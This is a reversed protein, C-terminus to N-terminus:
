AIKDGLMTYTGAISHSTTRRVATSECTAEQGLPLISSANLLAHCSGPGSESAPDEADLLGSSASGESSFDVIIAGGDDSFQAQFLTM